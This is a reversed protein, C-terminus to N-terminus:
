IQVSVIFNIICPKFNFILNLHLRSYLPIRKDNLIFIILKIYVFATLFINKLISQLFVTRYIKKRIMELIKKQIKTLM